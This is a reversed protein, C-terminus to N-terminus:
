RLKSNMVLWPLLTPKANSTRYKSMSILSWEWSVCHVTWIMSSFKVGRGLGAHCEGVQASVRFQVKFDGNGAAKVQAHELKQRVELRDELFIAGFLDNEYYVKDEKIIGLLNRCRVNLELSGELLEFDFTGQEAAEIALKLLDRATELLKRSSVQESVETAILIIGEIKGGPEKIPQYVFDFYREVLNGDGELEIKVEFGHYAKGPSYVEDLIQNLKRGESESTALLFPSNVVSKGNGMLAMLKDNASEVIHEEGNFVGIALRRMNYLPVFDRKEAPSNRLKELLQTQTDLIHKRATVQSTTEM